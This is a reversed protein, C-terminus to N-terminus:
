VGFVDIWLRQEGRQGIRRLLPRAPGRRGIPKAV